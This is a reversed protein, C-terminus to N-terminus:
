IQMIRKGLHGLWEREKKRSYENCMFKRKYKNRIRDLRTMDCLWMLIRMEMVKM